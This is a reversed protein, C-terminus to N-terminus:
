FFDVGKWYKFIGILSNTDNAGWGFMGHSLVIPYSGNLSPTSSGSGAFIGSTALMAVLMLGKFKM